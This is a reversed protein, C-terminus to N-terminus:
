YRKQFAVMSIKKKSEILSNEFFKSHYKIGINKLQRVYKDRDKDKYFTIKNAMAVLNDFFLKFYINSLNKYNEEISNALIESQFVLDMQKPNFSSRTIGNPSSYYKLGTFSSIAFLEGYDLLRYVTNMDEYLIGEPFSIDRFLRSNWIKYCAYMEIGNYEQILRLVKETQDTVLDIGKFEIEGNPSVKKHNFLFVDLSPMEHINEFFISLLGPCFEDDSDLFAIFSGSSHDIGFNRAASLGGNKTTFIKVQPNNKFENAVDITKDTSGDNFIIIETELNIQDLVSFVARRLTSESNFAPIIVSLLM